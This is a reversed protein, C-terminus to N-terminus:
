IAWAIGNPNDCSVCRDKIMKLNQNVVQAIGMISKKANGTLRERYLGYYYESLTEKEEKEFSATRNVRQSMVNEEFAKSAILYLAALGFMRPSADVLDCIINDYSCKIKVCPLIGQQTSSEMGNVLGAIVIDTALTKPASGCGCDGSSTCTITNLQVAPDEFYIKVSTAKTEYGINELILEEGAIFDQIIDKSGYQDKIKLVFQGTNALMVKLSDIKLSTFRSNSMNKVVIGTGAATVNSFFGTFDCSSCVSSLESIIRYNQPIVSDIDALMLRLASEKLSTFLAAGSVDKTALQSLRTMDMGEIDDLYFIPATDAAACLSKIGVLKNLCENM